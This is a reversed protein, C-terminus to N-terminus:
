TMFSVGATARTPMENASSIAFTRCVRKTIRPTAM